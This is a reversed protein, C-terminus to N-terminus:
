CCFQALRSHREIGNTHALAVATIQAVEIRKDGAHVLDAQQVRHDNMGVARKNGALAPEARCLSKPPALNRDRHDIHVLDHAALDSLVSVALVEGWGFQYGDGLLDFPALTFLRPLSLRM